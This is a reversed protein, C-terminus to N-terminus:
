LSLHSLVSQSQGTLSDCDRKMLHKVVGAGAGLGLGKAPRQKREELFPLESRCCDKREPNTRDTQFGKKVTLWFRTWRVVEGGWGMGDGVCVCWVQEGGWFTM